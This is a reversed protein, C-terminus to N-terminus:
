EARAIKLAKGWWVLQEITDALTGDYSELAGTKLAGTDDRLLWPNMIHVANRMPALQLEVVIQRLHEVARAGGVSGYSVFAVAKKNWENYVVDFANKLVASTGHNYEPTLVLFVDGEKVKAAFAGIADNGYVGNTISKASAANFYYPMDYDRLDLVEYSVEDTKDLQATVWPLLVESFRGERTSGVIVKINLM